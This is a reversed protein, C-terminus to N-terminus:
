LQKEEKVQTSLDDRYIGLLRVLERAGPLLEEFAPIRGDVNDCLWDMNMIEEPSLARSGDCRLRGERDTIKARFPEVSGNVIDKKLIEAM